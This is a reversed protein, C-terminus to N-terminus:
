EGFGVMHKAATSLDRPGKLSGVLAGAAGTVSSVPRAAYVALAERVVASRSLKRQEALEDLLRAIDPTLKFTYPRM